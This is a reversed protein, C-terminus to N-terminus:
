LNRRTIKAFTIVNEKLNVSLHLSVNTNPTIKIKEEDSELNQRTIKWFYM